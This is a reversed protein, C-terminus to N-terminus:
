RSLLQLDKFPKLSSCARELTLGIENEACRGCCLLRAGRYFLKLAQLTVHLLFFRYLRLPIWKIGTLIYLRFAELRLRCM